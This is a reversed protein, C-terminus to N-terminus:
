PTAGGQLNARVIMLSFASDVPAGPGASIYVKKALASLDYVNASRGLPGQGIVQAFILDYTQGEGAPLTVTYEGAGQRSTTVGSNLNPSSGDAAVQVYAVEAVSAQDANLM